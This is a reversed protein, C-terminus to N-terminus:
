DDETSYEPSTRDGKDNDGADRSGSEGRSTKINHVSIHNLAFIIYNLYCHVTAEEPNDPPPSPPEKHGQGAHLNTAYERLLEHASPNDDKKSFFSGIQKFIGKDQRSQTDCMPLATGLVAQTVKLILNRNKDPFSDSLLKSKELAKFKYNFKDPTPFDQLIDPPIIENWCSEMALHLQEKTDKDNHQGPVSNSENTDTTNTVGAPAITEDGTVEEDFPRKEGGEDERADTHNRPGANSRADTYSRADAKNRTAPNDAADAKERDVANARADINDRTDTNERSDVKDRVDAKDRAHPQEPTDTSTPPMEEATESPLIQGLRANLMSAVKESLFETTILQELHANISTDIVERLNLRELTTDLIEAVRATIGNTITEQKARVAEDLRNGIATGILSEMDFDGLRETFETSVARPVTDAFLHDVKKDIERQLRDQLNGKGKDFLPSNSLAKRVAADFYDSLAERSLGERVASKVSQKVPEEILEFVAQKSSDERLWSFFDERLWDAQEATVLDHLEDLVIPREANSTQERAESM